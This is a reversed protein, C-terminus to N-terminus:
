PTSRRFKTRAELAREFCTAAENRKGQKIYIEGLNNWASEYNPEITLAKRYSTEALALDGKQEYAWGLDDYMEEINPWDNREQLAKNYCSIAEDFKKQSLLVSCISQRAVLYDPTIDLAKKFYRIGEEYRKQTAQITGIETYFEASMAPYLQIAKEYMAISQSWKAQKNLNEAYEAYQIAARARTSERVVPALLNEVPAYDDTLVIWRGRKKLAEIESDNLIWLNLNAVQKQSTLNELNIKQRSAVIVFTGWASKRTQEDAIVYINPFTQELTRVIAGLFLGVRYADILNVMYIGDDTLIQSIKDNFERTTLQYPVSYDNIADEYTIDYQPTQGGTQKERLLMDIYNRADMPFTKIATNRDLGFAQVAAETVRPDIEAVDVRSGPWVKEIYRPFVYGGGGIALVSLSSRDGRTLHTVGAYIQEYSYQLNLIDGMVIM